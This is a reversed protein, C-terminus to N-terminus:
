IKRGKRIILEGDKTELLDQLAKCESRLDNNEKEKEKYKLKWDDRNQELERQRDRQAKVIKSKAANKVKNGDRSKELRNAKKRLSRVEEKANSLEKKQDM